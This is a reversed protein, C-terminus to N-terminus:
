GARPEGDDAAAARRLRDNIAMGLGDEPIRAVAIGSHPGADLAHLMAFLNAAAENLDGSESLTLTAGSGLRPGFALFAEGPRATEANLRLPLSPAYHRTMQGPSRRARSGVPEDAAVAVPGILGQLQERTVAGPRLLAPEDGTLDVVTSEIGIECRGGALILDVVGDLGAVVHRATTPSIGGSPNASPAVIPRDAAALLARAKAHGPVRMALSDLGASALLSVPCGARRPLVVTLPGPWLTTALARAKDNFMVLREADEAAAVHVILPNFTPRRKAAFVAAVAKDNTADAGLGYVTETPFAVLKGARLAQAARAIGAPGADVIPTAHAATDTM